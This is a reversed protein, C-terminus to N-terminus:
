LCNKTLNRLKHLLFDFDFTVVKEKMSTSQEPGIPDVIETNIDYADVSVTMEPFGLWVLIM